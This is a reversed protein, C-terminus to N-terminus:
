LGQISKSRLPPRRRALCPLRGGNEKRDKGDPELLRAGPGGPSLLSCFSVKDLLALTSLGLSDEGKSVGGVQALVGGYPPKGRTSDWASPSPSM